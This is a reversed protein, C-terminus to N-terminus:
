KSILEWVEQLRKESVPVATKMQQAFLSVRYEELLWRFGDLHPRYPHKKKLRHTEELKGLWPQLNQMARQDKQFGGAAIKGWRHSMAKFYRPYQLLWGWPTETFFGSPVLQELQRRMDDAVPRLAPPITGELFRRTEHYGSLLPETLAALEQAAVSLHNRARKLRETWADATRPLEKEIGFLARDAMRECLAEHLSTGGPLSMGLVNIRDFKPLHKVQVEIRSRDTHLYLRVLSRRTRQEAEQPNDTLRLSFTLPAIGSHSSTKAASSGKPASERNSPSPPPSSEVLLPYATVTVGSREITVTKPLEDFDWHTIGDRTWRVDRVAKVAQSAQQGLEQKLEEISRGASVESGQKDVVRINMSLHSPLRALDFSEPPVHEGSMKRLTLALQEVIEGEGFNLMPVIERATDNAPVFMRRLEKPLTKILAAIKEELLGPVLWGLRSPPLQNVAEQPVIVTIGDQSTGPELKYELKLTMSGISISDPFDHREPMAYPDLLLAERTFWLREPDTQEVERRWKEFSPGDVVDAPLRDDFFAFEADETHFFSGQRLKAQWEALEEKLMENHTVFDGRSRYDGEVLGNRIFLERSLKPDIKGYRVLRGAVIPLGFLLVKEYAMVAASKKSWHPESYTKKILHPAIREIWEPQVPAICRAFRRTTEVLEAAVIWKPKKKFVVSGPWLFFTQGGAGTYEHTEGALGVNSLLGTLIARHVSDANPFLPQSETSAQAGSDVPQEIRGSQLNRSQQRRSSQQGPPTSQTAPSAATTNDSESTTVRPATAVSNGKKRRRRKKKASVAPPPVQRQESKAADRVKEEARELVGASVAVQRLQRYLDRWERMRNFSLYNQHCAKRLKSASLKEKLDDYFQWLRLYGIFDSRDDKFKAHAQDAQQQKDVPRERPDRLELAAAIILVEDVCREEAGALIMRGISPDCPLKALQRGIPTLEDKEDIAGLEFLTKLGGRIAGPKPSELLPFDEIRGLQLSKMRLLVDALNTRLIEPPTFRERGLFDREEYLRVCIGPGLRGCRGKRQDASAQSIPEIPLRQVKSSAAFRSIRALGPDVVYRIGPVTLSSEAVNTAVVIRRGSHPQFITNQESESLRGFLPVIETRSNDLDGDFTRGRLVRCTERIDRETPMFVLIDGPGEAALEQCADATTRQWDVEGVDDDSVQPPRYRTEVPFTRGSVEIVPAPGLADAFFEAYREVDITASTIIVRLEPRRPLIRKLYGLLFDINLSREHAEDIILTDYQLLDRDTQTEALLIGDTMLKIYTKPSTADTFRIKFGVADGVKSKLEEAVRSSVSRAALRRPQTHGIIGEIGRGLELCIKPLQTSKGSGTEGCLVVVQRDRITAAIEDKVATIPLEPDYTVVPREREKADRMALSRDLIARAETLKRDFPEGRRERRRMEELLKRLGRRDRLLSREIQASM